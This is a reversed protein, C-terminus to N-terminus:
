INLEYIFINIKGNQNNQISFLEPYLCIKLKEYSKNIEPFHDKILLYQENNM